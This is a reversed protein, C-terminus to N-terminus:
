ASEGGEGPLVDIHVVPLDGRDRFLARQQALRADLTEDVAVRGDAAILRLGGLRISEDVAVRVGDVAEALAKDAARCCLTAGALPTVAAARALAKQWYAAYGEGAAFAAVRAEAEAFLDDCLAERKDCLARRLGRRTEALAHGTERRVAGKRRETLVRMERVVQKQTRRTEAALADQRQQELKARTEQSERQIEQLFDSFRPETAM